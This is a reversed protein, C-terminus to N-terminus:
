RTGNITRYNTCGNQHLVATQCLSLRVSPCVDAMAYAARDYRQATFIVSSIVNGNYM